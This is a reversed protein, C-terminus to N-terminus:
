TPGFGITYSLNTRWHREERTNETTQAVVGYVQVAASSVVLSRMAADV